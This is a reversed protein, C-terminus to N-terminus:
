FVFNSATGTVFMAPIRQLPHPTAIDTSMFRSNSFDLRPHTDLFERFGQILQGTEGIVEMGMRSNEIWVGFADAQKLVPPRHSATLLRQIPPSGFSECEGRDRQFSETDSNMALIHFSTRETMAM